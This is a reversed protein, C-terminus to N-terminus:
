SPVRAENDRKLDEAPTICGEAVQKKADLYNGPWCPGTSPQGKEIIKATVKLDLALFQAHKTMSTFGQDHPVHPAVAKM